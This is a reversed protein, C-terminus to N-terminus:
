AKQEVQPRKSIFVGIRAIHGADDFDFVLAEATHLPAGDIEVTETLEAVVTKGNAGANLVRHVEMGYGPLTPMLGSLYAVYGDRGTFTDGYPGIRVVDEALLAELAAWDHAVLRELYRAVLAANGTAISSGSANM